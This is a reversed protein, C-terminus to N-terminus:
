SNILDLKLGQYGQYCKIDEIFLLIKCVLSLDFSTSVGSERRSVLVILKFILGSMAHRTLM